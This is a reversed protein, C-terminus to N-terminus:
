QNARYRAERRELAAVLRTHRENTLPYNWVLYSALLFFFTPIVAYELRIMWLGAANPTSQPDYGTLNLIQLAIFMGIAFTALLSILGTAFVASAMDPNQPLAGSGGSFSTKQTTFDLGSKFDYYENLTNVSIHALLGGLMALALLKLDISSHEAIVTSAGLFICVPSLILFPGRMARFLTKVNM